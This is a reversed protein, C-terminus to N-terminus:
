AFPWGPSTKAKEPDVIAINVPKQGETGENTATASSIERWRERSIRYLCHRELDHGPPLKPHNFQQGTDQMGIKQMVRKSPENPVATFAYVEDLFLVAFAYDLAVKGAEPAYGRGWHQAAIRWGIEVLPAHPIGSEVPQEHLGVFGIFEHCSKLEVAWFGWGKESIIGRMRQAIAASEDASLLAPFFRMVALDANLRAFPPIDTDRWQRLILRETEM